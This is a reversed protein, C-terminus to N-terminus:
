LLEFKMVEEDINVEMKIMKEEFGDLNRIKIM